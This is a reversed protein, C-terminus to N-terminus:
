RAVLAVVAYARASGSAGFFWFILGGKGRESLFDLFCFAGPVPLAHDGVFPACTAREILRCAPIKLVFFSNQGASKNSAIL